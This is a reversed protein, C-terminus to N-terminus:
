RGFFDEVSMQATEEQDSVSTGSLEFPNGDLDFVKLGGWGQANEVVRRAVGESGCFYWAEDYQRSLRYLVSKLRKASKKTLEVEIAVRKGDALTVVADPMRVPNKQGPTFQGGQEQVRLERETTWIMEPMQERLMLFVDTVKLTHEYLSIDLKGPGTDCKALAIGKRTAFYLYPGHHFLKKRELYGNLVLRKCVSLAWHSSIGFFRAIQQITVFWFRSAFCIIELDRKTVQM